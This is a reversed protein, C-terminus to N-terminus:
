KTEDFMDGEAGYQYWGDRKERSFMDLKSGHCLSDVLSYFEQPKRSHERVPAYLMNSQNSLSVPPNGRIALLCHETQGRLWNGLGIRDKVWTLITKQIFNWAELAHFAEHMFTNTTWLFLVCDQEAPIKLALIKDIPMAPYPMRGQHLPDNKRIEYPWAPDVVIVNYLGNPVQQMQEEIRKVAAEKRESFRIENYAANVTTKGEDLKKMLDRAKENGSQAHNFVERAMEYSKRGMGAYAGLIADTRANEDRKKEPTESFGQPLTAGLTEPKDKDNRSIAETKTTAEDGGRDTNSEEEKDNRSPRGGLKGLHGQAIQKERARLEIIERLKETERMKQSFTKERQRNFELLISQEDLESSPNIERTPVDDIGLELAAKWRRHGSLITGDPKVVIAELIGNERISEVIGDDPEADGYIEISLKNAKLKNVNM